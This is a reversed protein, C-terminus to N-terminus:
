NKHNYAFNEINDKEKIILITIIKKVIVAFHILLRTLNLNVSLVFHLFYFGFKTVFTIEVQKLM